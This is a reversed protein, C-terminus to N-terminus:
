QYIYYIFFSLFSFVIVRVCLRTIQFLVKPRKTVFAPWVSLGYYSIQGKVNWVVTHNVLWCVMLDPLYILGLKKVHWPKNPVPTWEYHRLLQLSCLTIM